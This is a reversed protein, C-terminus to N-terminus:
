SPNRINKYKIFIETYSYLIFAIIGSIITSSIARTYDVTNFEFSIWFQFYLMNSIFTLIAFSKAISLRGEMTVVLIFLDLMIAFGIAAPWSSTGEPASRYFWIATHHMQVFIAVFLAFFKFYMSELSEIASTLMTRTLRIFSSLLKQTRLRSESKLAGKRENFPIRVPKSSTTNLLKLNVSEQEINILLKRALEKTRESARKSKLYEEALTCLGETEIYTIDNEYRVPLGLAHVKKIIRKPRLNLAKAVLSLSFM